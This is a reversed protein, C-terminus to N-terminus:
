YYTYSDFDLSVSLASGLASTKKKETKLIYKTIKLANFNKVIRIEDVYADM